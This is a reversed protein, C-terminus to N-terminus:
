LWIECINKNSILYICFPAQTYVWNQRFFLGMKFNLFFVDFLANNAVQVM